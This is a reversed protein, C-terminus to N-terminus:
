CHYDELYHEWDWHENRELVIRAADEDVEFNLLAEFWPLRVAALSGVRRRCPLSVSYLACSWAAHFFAGCHTM